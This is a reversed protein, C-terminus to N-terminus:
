RLVIEERSDLVAGTLFILRTLADRVSARVRKNM